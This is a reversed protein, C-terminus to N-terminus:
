GVQLSQVLRQPAAQGDRLEFVLEWRGPMHFMLGEARYVGARPSSVSPRYNMGHKHEPMLADVRVESPLGAAARPCLEFDLVFHRGVPIPAPTARYVLLWRPSEIRQAEAGLSDGCAWAPLSLLAWAAAVWGARAPALRTEGMPRGPPSSAGGEHQASRIEGKPRGPPSM